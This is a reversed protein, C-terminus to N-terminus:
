KPPMIFGKKNNKGGLCLYNRPQVPASEEGWVGCGREASGRGVGARPEGQNLSSYIGGPYIVSSLGIVGPSPHAVSLAKLPLIALILGMPRPAGPGWMTVTSTAVRSWSPCAPCPGPWSSSAIKLFSEEHEQLTQPLAPPIDGLPSALPGMRCGRPVCLQPCM